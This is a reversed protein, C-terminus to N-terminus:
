WAEEAAQLRNALEVKKVGAARAAKKLDLEATSPICFVLPSYKEDNAILTKWVEEPNAGLEQALAAADVHEESVAYTLTEYVIGLSDLIRMANTKSPEKM